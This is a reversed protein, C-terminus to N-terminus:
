RPRFITAFIVKSDNSTDFCPDRALFANIYIYLYKYNFYRIMIKRFFRHIFYKLIVAFSVVIIDTLIRKLALTQKKRRLKSTIPNQGVKEFDNKSLKNYICAGSVNEILYNVVAVSINIVMAMIGTEKSLVALVASM